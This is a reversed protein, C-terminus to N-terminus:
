VSPTRPARVSQDAYGYVEVTVHALDPFHALLRKYHEPSRPEATVISVIAALHRPGVRWVHLDCVRDGTGDEIAREIAKRRKDPLEADLLVRSTDRLLSVSWKAIVVSGVIGMLPDMWNWGFFKGTALAAIALVSTLADALVHM